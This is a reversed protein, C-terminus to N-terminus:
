TDQYLLKDKNKDDLQIYNQLFHNIKAFTFKGDFQPSM